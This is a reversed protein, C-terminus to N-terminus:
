EGEHVIFSQFFMHWQKADSIIYTSHSVRQHDYTLPSKSGHINRKIQILYHTVLCDEDSLIVKYHTVRSM